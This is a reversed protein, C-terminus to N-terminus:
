SGSTDTMVLCSDQSRQVFGLKLHGDGCYSSFICWTGAAVRSFEHSKGRVALHPGIGTCKTSFLVSNGILSTLSRSKRISSFLIGLFVTVLLSCCQHWRLFAFYIPTGWILELHLVNGRWQIWLWRANWMMFLLPKVDKVVIWVNGSVGMELRYSYWNWYLLLIFSGPFLYRRSILASERDEVSYTLWREM